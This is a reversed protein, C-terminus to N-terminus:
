GPGDARAARALLTDAFRRNLNALARRDAESWDALAMALL